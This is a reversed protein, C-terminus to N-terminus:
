NPALPPENRALLTQGKLSSVAGAAGESIEHLARKTPRAGWPRSPRNNSQPGLKVESTAIHRNGVRHQIIPPTREAALSASSVCM